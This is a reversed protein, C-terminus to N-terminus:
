DGRRLRYYLDPFLIVWLAKFFVEPKRFLFKVSRLLIKKVGKEALLNKFAEKNQERSFITFRRILAEPLLMDEALSKIKKTKAHSSIYEAAHLHGETFAKYRKLRKEFTDKGRVQGSEPNLIYIYLCEPTFAIKEAHCMLEINFIVDQGVTCVALFKVGSNKILSSKYLTACCHPSLRSALRLFLIEDGDRVFPAKLKIKEYVDPRNTGEFRRIMGGFAMDCNYKLILNALTSVLNNKADDDADCFWIFDGSAADLGDNRSIALGSNKEHNIIKFNRGCKELFDQAVQLTKDTSADNVFIIELNEYDQNNIAKLAQTVRGENNFSTIIVSVLPRIKESM